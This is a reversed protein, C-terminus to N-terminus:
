NIQVRNEEIGHINTETRARRSHRARMVDQGPAERDISFRRLQINGVEGLDGLFLGGPFGRLDQWVGCGEGEQKKHHQAADRIQHVLPPLQGGFRNFLPLQVVWVPQGVLLDVPGGITETLLLEQPPSTKTANVPSHQAAVTHLDGDLFHRVVALLPHLLKDRLHGTQPPQPVPVQNLQLTPAPSLVLQEEDILEHRISAEIGEQEIRLPPVEAPVFPELNELSDSGAKSIHLRAVNQQVGFQVPLQPVKPQGPQILMPSIRLRGVYHACKPVHRRLQRDGSLRRRAGVDESEAGEQKLHGTSPPRDLRRPRAIFHNQHAPYVHAPPPSLQEGHHILPQPLLIHLRLHLQHQLKSHEARLSNRFSSRAHPLHNLEEISIHRQLFDRQLLQKNLVVEAVVLQDHGKPWGSEIEIYRFYEDIKNFKSSSSSHYASLVGDGM